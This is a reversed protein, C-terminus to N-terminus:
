GGPPQGVMPGVMKIEKMYLPSGTFMPGLLYKKVWLAALSSNCQFEILMGLVYDQLHQLAMIELAKVGWALSKYNAPWINAWMIQTKIQSELITWIIHVM